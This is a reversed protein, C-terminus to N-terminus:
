GSGAAAWRLPHFRELGVKLEKSVYKFAKPSSSAPLRTLGWRWDQHSKEM